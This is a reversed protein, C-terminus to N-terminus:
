NWGRSQSAPQSAPLDGQLGRHHGTTKGESPSTLNSVPLENWISMEPHIMCPDYNEHSCLFHCIWNAEYKEKNVLQSGFAKHFPQTIQVNPWSKSDSGWVFQVWIAARVPTSCMEADSCTVRPSDLKWLSNGIYVLLVWVSYLDHLSGM